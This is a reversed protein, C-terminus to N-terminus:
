YANSTSCCALLSPQSPAIPLLSVHCSGNSGVATEPLRLLHQRHLSNFV